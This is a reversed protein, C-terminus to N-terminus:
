IEQAMRRYRECQQPFVKELREWLSEITRTFIRVREAWIPDSVEPFADGLARFVREQTRLFYLVELFYSFPDDQRVEQYGLWIENPKRDLSLGRVASAFRVHLSAGSGQEYAGSLDLREIETRIRGQFEQYFQRGESDTALKLWRNAISPDDRMLFLLALSEAEQRGYGIAATLRMRLLDTAAWMFQRQLLLFVIGRARRALGSLLATRARDLVPDRTESRIRSLLTDGDIGLEKACDAFTALDVSDDLAGIMCRSFTKFMEAATDLAASLEPDFDTFAKRSNSINEADAQILEDLESM